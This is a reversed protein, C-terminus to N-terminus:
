QLHELHPQRERPPLFGLLLRLVVTLFLTDDRRFFLINGGAHGDARPVPAGFGCGVLEYRWIQRKFNGHDEYSFVLADYGNRAMRAIGDMVAGLSQQAFETGFEVMTLRPPAAVFDHSRLADFDWGEADVKLFDVREIGRAKIFESLKLAPVTLTSQTAGYPSPSLGSLGTTSQYFTVSEGATSSVVAKHISARDGFRGALRELTQACAPDPEFLEAKWGMHLFPEAIQGVCAGVDLMQRTRGDDPMSQFYPVVLLRVLETDTLTGFWLNGGTALEASLTEIAAHLKAAPQRLLAADTACAQHAMDVFAAEMNRSATESDFVPNLPHLAAQIRGRERQRLETSKALALARAVYAEEGSVAMDGIGLGRLMGAGVGSRFSQGSRAVVPLGVLLPDLLSCAGAFPYSDLYIDALSMVGHLDARTPMSGLIHVKDPDGGAEAVQGLLRAEFPQTLYNHSWNQNFPMLVLRADPVQALIRAWTASLEPVIKFFNAASFFVLANRPIGLDARDLMVTRPDKDLHYAYRTLMGPMRYVKETYQTAAGEKTENEQANLYWDATTLGSTVPSSASIVQVRALRFSALFSVHSMAVTINSGILLVDLDDARIREAAAGLNDIPLDVTSDALNRAYQSLAGGEQDQLAYLFLSCRERPFREFHALMFFTETQAGFHTSLIGVRLRRDKGGDPLVPYSHPLRGGLALGWSETLQARHRYLDKLNCENFYVQILSLQTFFIDRVRAAHEPAPRLAVYRHIAAVVRCAFDGYRQADGLRSFVRPMSILFRVYEPLLWDSVKELEERIPLEFAQLYLMAALLAGLPPRASELRRRLAAVVEDESEDLGLDRLGSHVLLSHSEGRPGAFQKRAEEDSLGSFHKALAKREARLRPEAAQADEESAGLAAIAAKLGDQESTEGSAFRTDAM